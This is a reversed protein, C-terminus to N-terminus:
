PEDLAYSGHQVPGTPEYTAIIVGTSTTTARILRLAAAKAGGLFLKKGSGLHM